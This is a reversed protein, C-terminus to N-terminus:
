RGEEGRAAHSPTAPEDAVEAEIRRVGARMMAGWQGRTVPLSMWHMCRRFLVVAGFLFLLQLLALLLLAWVWSGLWKALLVGLLGLVTLGFGVGAVTAALGAVLLWSVASRALGLEAALLDKQAGFLRKLAAGLRAIEDFLGSSSPAPDPATERTSDGQEHM